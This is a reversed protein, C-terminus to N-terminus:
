RCNNVRDIVRQALLACRDSKARNPLRGAGQFDEGTAAEFLDTVAEEALKMAAINKQRKSKAKSKFEEFLSQLTFIASNVDDGMETEAGAKLWYQRARVGCDRASSVLAARSIERAETRKVIYAGLMFSLLPGGFVKLIGSSVELVMEADPSM